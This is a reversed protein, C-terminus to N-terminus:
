KKVGKSGFKEVVKHGDDGGKEAGLVDKQERVSKWSAKKGKKEKM